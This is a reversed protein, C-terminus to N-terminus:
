LAGGPTGDGHTRADREACAQEVAAVAAPEAARSISHDRLTDVAPYPV